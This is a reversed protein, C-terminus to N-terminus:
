DNEWGKEKSKIYKNILYRNQSIKLGNTSSMYEACDQISGFKGFPSNISKSNNNFAGSQNVHPRPGRGGMNKRKEKDISWTKGLTPKRGQRKLSMKQKTEESLKRGLMYSKSALITAEASTIQGTLALWAIKDEVKGYKEWLIKHADAHEEITLEILNEVDDSGNMHKPIIHHKHYIM